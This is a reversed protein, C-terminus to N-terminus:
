RGGDPGDDSGSSDYSGLLNLGGLAAAGAADEAAGVAVAPAPVGEKVNGSEAKDAVDNKHKGKHKKRKKSTSVDQGAGGGGAGTKLRKKKPKVLIKTSASEAAAAKVKNAERKAQAELGAVLLSRPVDPVEDVGGRAKENGNEGGRADDTTVAVVAGGGNNRVSQFRPADEVASFGTGRSKSQPQKGKSASSKEPEETSRSELGDPDSHYDIDDAEAM